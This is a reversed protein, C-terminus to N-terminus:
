QTLYEDEDYIRAGNFQDIGAKPLAEPGLYKSKIGGTFKSQSLVTYRAKQSGINQLKKWDQAFKTEM